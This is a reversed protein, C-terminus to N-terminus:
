TITSDPELDVLRIMYYILCGVVGVSVFYDSVPYLQYMVDSNEDFYKAVLEFCRLAKPSNNGLAVTEEKIDQVIHKSKPHSKLFRCIVITTKFYLCNM